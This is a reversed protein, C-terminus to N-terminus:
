GNKILFKSNIKDLTGESNKNYLLQTITNSNTSTKDGFTKRLLNIYENISFPQELHGGTQLKEFAENTTIEYKNWKESNGIENVEDWSLLGYKSDKTKGFIDKKTHITAHISGKKVKKKSLVYQNIDKLKQPQKKMELFHHVLQTITKGSLETDLNSYLGRGVNVFKSPRSLTAHVSRKSLDIGYEENLIKRVKSYHLPGHENLINEVITISPIRSDNIFLDNDKVVINFRLELLIKILNRVYDGEQNTNILDEAMLNYYIDEIGEEITVQIHEIMYTKIFNNIKIYPLQTHYKTSIIGESKSTTSFTFYSSLSMFNSLNPDEIGLCYLLHKEEPYLIPRSTLITKLENHKELEVILIPNFIPKILSTAMEEIQRIRERTVGLDEGIEDLTKDDFYRAKFVGRDYTSIKEALIRIKDQFNSQHFVEITTDQENSSHFSVAENFLDRNSLYLKKFKEYSGLYPLLENINSIKNFQMFKKLGISISRDKPEQPSNSIESEDSLKNWYLYAENSKTIHEKLDKVFFIGKKYFKKIVKRGLVNFYFILPLNLFEQNIIRDTEKDKSIIEKSPKEDVEKDFLYSTMDLFAELKFKTKSYPLNEINEKTSNYNNIFSDLSDIGMEELVKLARRGLEKYEKNLDDYM